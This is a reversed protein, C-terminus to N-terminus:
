EVNFPGIGPFTYTFTKEGQEWNELQSAGTCIYNVNAINVTSGCGSTCQWYSTNMRTVLQGIKSATCGPGQGYAWGLKFSFQVQHCHCYLLYFHTSNVKVHLLKTLRNYRIYVNIVNVHM